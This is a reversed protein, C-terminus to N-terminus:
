GSEEKGDGAELFVIRTDGYRREDVGAPLEMAEDAGYEVSLLDAFPRSRYAAVLRAALGRGYPPDALAVDFGTPAVGAVYDFADDAVVTSSDAADLAEINARLCALAARGREVFTAHEAGRSLAELGLAGSGAFLDLVRAGVLGPGLISM